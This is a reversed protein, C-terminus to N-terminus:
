FRSFFMPLSFRGFYHLFSSLHTLVYPSIQGYMPWHVQCIKSEGEHLGNRRSDSYVWWCRVMSSGPFFIYLYVFLRLFSRITQLCHKAVLLCFRQWQDCKLSLNYPRLEGVPTRFTMAEVGLLKHWQSFSVKRMTNRGLMFTVMMEKFVYSVYRCCPLRRSTQWM